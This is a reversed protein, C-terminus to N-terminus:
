DRPLGDTTDLITFSSAGGTVELLSRFFLM